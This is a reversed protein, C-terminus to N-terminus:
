FTVTGNILTSWVGDSDQIQLSYLQNRYKSLAISQSINGNQTCTPIPCTHNRSELLSTSVLNFDNFELTDYVGTIKNKVIIKIKQLTAGGFVSSNIYAKTTSNCYLFFANPDGTVYKFEIVKSNVIPKSFVTVNYNISHTQGYSDKIEVTLVDNNNSDAEYDFSYLNSSSSLNFDLWTNKVLESTSTVAFIKSPNTSNFKIQYTASPLTNTLTFKFEKRLTNKVSFDAVKTLNFPTTIDVDTCLVKVNKSKVIGNNDTLSFTVNIEGDSQPMLDLSILNLDDITFDYQNDVLLTNSGNKVSLSGSTVSYSFKYDKNDILNKSSLIELQFSKLTNILIETDDINRVEFEFDSSYELERDCSFIVVLAFIAYLIKKM